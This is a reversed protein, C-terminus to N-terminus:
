PLTLTIMPTNGSVSINPFATTTHGAASIIATYTGATLGNFYALGCTSTPVTAAYGSKTLMVKAEAVSSGDGSVVSVPLTSGQPAGILLATSTADAPALVYPSAGCSEIMNAIPSLTYSDWELTESKSAAAGTTDSLTTKYISAGAADTGITKAGTLTFATNPLPIPGSTHSLSWDLLSPTTTTADSALDAELSLTPYSSTAIDTLSVPFTSFGTSNGPLDADPIMVGAGDDVHVVASTGSPASLTASLIGWGDLYSPSISISRASGALSYGAPYPQNALALSSSTVDTNTQAALNSASSFTDTFASTAAPSFSSLVLTALRDIAFTASTTQNKAITLYGPTPNTNPAIRAYTQASSYGPRTVLIQYQSSTAAGGILVLGSADSLTQLNVAPSLSINSIQVNAGSMDAGTADVIHLSITGGNTAAEVGPPVFNSALTASKVLGYLSYSVTVKGIKYDTTVANTDSAGLGDAPDDQYIIYTRITYTVGDVTSTATQPVNGSPIGGSTGLADYSLGRLYEMQTSALEVAASKAKTITSLTLSAKLVGFLALFVVLLLSVGVIV